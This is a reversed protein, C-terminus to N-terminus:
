RRLNFIQRYVLGSIRALVTSSRNHTIPEMNEFQILQKNLSHVVTRLPAKQGIMSSWGTSIKDRIVLEQHLDDLLAYLAIHIEPIFFINTLEKLDCIIRICIMNIQIHDLRQIADLRAARTPLKAISVRLKEAISCQAPLFRNLLVEFASPRGQM